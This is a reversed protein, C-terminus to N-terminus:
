LQVCGPLVDDASELEVFFAVHGSEAKAVPISLPTKVELPTSSWKAKRFDKTDSQATWLRAARLSIDTTIDIRYGADTEALKWTMTPLKSGQAVHKAFVAATQAAKLQQGDLGHGANPLTLIYKVGLLDDFYFKAADVTWYPDNTGHILLKPM